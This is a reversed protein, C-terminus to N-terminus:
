CRSVPCDMSGFKDHSLFGQAAAPGATVGAAIVLSGFFLRATEFYPRKM